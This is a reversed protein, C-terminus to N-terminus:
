NENVFLKKAHIKEPLLIIFKTGKGEESEMNLLGGHKEVFERCLVLGLGTGKEGQTGPNSVNQNLYFLKDKIDDPIGIGYDKVYIEYSGKQHTAGVIIKNGPTSFKIANALLNRIITNFMNEDVKIQFDEQIDAELSLEKRSAPMNLVNFNNEILKRISQYQPNFKIEGKQTRAWTLLNELLEHLGDASNKLKLLFDAKAKESMRDFRASMMELGASLSSIPGKLDHAIINFFKDKTENLETLRIETLVLNRNQRELQDNARALNRESSKLKENALVLRRNSESLETNSRRKLNFLYAIAVFLSVAMMSALILFIIITNKRSTDLSHIIDKQKLDQLERSQNQLLVSNETSKIAIDIYNSFMLSDLEHQRTSYELAKKYDNQRTHLGILKKYIKQKDKLYEKEEAVNLAKEAMHLAKDPANVAAYLDALDLYTEIIEINKGLEQYISIASDFYIQAKDYKQLQAFHQGIRSFNDGLFAISLRKDSPSYGTTDKLMVSASHYYQLAKDGQSLLSHSYGLYIFNHAIGITYQINERLELSREHYEIAKGLDQMLRHCLAINNYAVALGFSIEQLEESHSHFSQISKFYQSLAQEANNQSYYINGINVQTWAYAMYDRIKNYYQQAMLYSELSKDIIGMRHYLMGLTHYCDGILSDSQMKIGIQYLDYVLSIGELPNQVLVNQTYQPFFDREAQSYKQMQLANFFNEETYFEKAILTQTFAVTWFAIICIRLM